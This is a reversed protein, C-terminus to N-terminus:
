LHEFWRARNEQMKGQGSCMEAKRIEDNRFRDIRTCEKVKFFENRGVLTTLQPVPPAAAAPCNSYFM